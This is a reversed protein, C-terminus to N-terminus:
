PRGIKHLLKGWIQDEKGEKLLSHDNMFEAFIQKLKGKLISCNGKIQISNAM